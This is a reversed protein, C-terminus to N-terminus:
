RLFPPLVSIGREFVDGLLGVMPNNAKHYAVMPEIQERAFFQVDMIRAESLRQLHPRRKKDNRSILWEKGLQYYEWAVLDAGRLPTISDSSLFSVGINTPGEKTINNNRQFFEFVRKNADERHPRNDFVYAVETENNRRAWQDTWVFCQTVCFREADGLFRRLDGLVLADWDVRSGGCCYGRIGANIIIERFDHILADREAQNYGVFEGEGHVCDYMHFRKLPPKGPLPSALKARWASDFPTWQKETGYLGGLLVFLSNDHTGSDDFYATLMGM